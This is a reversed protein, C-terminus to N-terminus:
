GNEKHYDEKTRFTSSCAMIDQHASDFEISLFYSSSDDAPDQIAWSVLFYGDKYHCYVQLANYGNPAVKAGTINEANEDQEMSARMSNALTNYNIGAYRTVTILNKGSTDSMQVLDSIGADQYKVFDAPVQIYGHDDDGVQQLRGTYVFEGSEDSISDRPANIADDANIVIDTPPQSTDPFDIGPNTVGINANNVSPISVDPVTVKPMSGLDWGSDTKSQSQGCACLAGAMCLAAIASIIRKM